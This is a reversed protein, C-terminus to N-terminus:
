RAGRSRDPDIRQRYKRRLQKHRDDLDVERGEIFMMRVKQGLYDLVDGDSVFLTADKGEELSGQRDDIGLIEAASLTIARLAVDRPLGFAAAQGAQFALNRANWSARKALCFRVGAEHLRLPRRFASDYADDERPPLAQTDGLIVPVDHQRLLDAALHADAGGVLVMRAGHEEAFAVAEVIERYDDAIVYLPREGTFVPRMAEWRVRIEVQEDAERARQYARAQEFVARLRKRQEENHKRQEEPSERVWWADVVAARPWEVVLGDIRRVAADEENWGDLHTIFGLGQILSGGPLVQATTIGNSRVTPIIESDYNYAVHAAAEPTVDGVEALDRTARVAGIEVMGISTATAILGPYVRKGTVDIVRANAPAELDKGIRAIRGAEFLLDTATLVDSSVTYLDGGRLLVPQQQPGGPVQDYAPTWTSAALLSLLGPLLRRGARRGSM